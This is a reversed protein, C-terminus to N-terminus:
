PPDIPGDLSLQHNQVVQVELKEMLTHGEIFYQYMKIVLSTGKGPKHTKGERQQHYM